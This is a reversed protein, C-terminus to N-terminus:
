WILNLINIRTYLILVQGSWQKQGAERDTVFNCAVGGINEIPNGWFKCAEKNCNSSNCIM